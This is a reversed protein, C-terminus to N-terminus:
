VHPHNAPLVPKFQQATRSQPPPSRNACCIACFRQGALRRITSRRVAAPLCTQPYSGHNAVHPFLRFVAPVPSGTGVASPPPFWVSGILRCRAALWAPRGRARLIYFRLPNFTALDPNSLVWQVSDSTLTEWKHLGILIDGRQLGAQSASSDPRVDAIMMGGHLQPNNRTVAEPTLPQLRLGLRRWVADTTAAATRIGDLTMEAHQTDKGRQYVVTLHDGAATDIMAREVDISTLVATDGMKVLVDGRHLGAKAAPSDADIRDVLVTRTFGEERSSSVEDRVAMGHSVSGAARAMMKATARIMTDVPIAFGINQAGARIAVNVGILDGHVNLLPGGSNGPNIAADTQILAKYSVEKNLNVDRGIASVVGVTVTHDYGYANGIAIVTEGVMLDSSTGLSVVALPKSTDIKLLALDNEQDRAVVRAGAATGDALRVRITNVEDIVHHNTIVYGRPDIIIGTGMGNIRHQTPALAFFEETMAGMATRESHINVVADRNRRAVEVAPTQRLSWDRKSPATSFSPTLNEALSRGAMGGLITATLLLALLTLRRRM